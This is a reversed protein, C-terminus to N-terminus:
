KGAVALTSSELIDGLVEACYSHTAFAVDPHNDFPGRYRVVGNPDIVVVMPLARASYRTAVAANHDILMPFEPDNLEPEFREPAGDALINLGLFQVRADGTYKRALREVRGTYEISLPSDSSCFFLVVAQGRHRSLTRAQGYQDNLQFDPADTGIDAVEVPRSYRPVLLLTSAAASLVVFAALLGLQARRRPSISM